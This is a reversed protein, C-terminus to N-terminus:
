RMVLSEKCTKLKGKVKLFLKTSKMSVRHVGCTIFCIFSHIFLEGINKQCIYGFSQSCGIDNWKGAIEENWKMDM